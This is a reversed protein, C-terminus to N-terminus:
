IQEVQAGTLRHRTDFIFRSHESVLDWDFIDHDTLVVVADAASLEEATLDCMRIRTDMRSREIHPDVAGVDAGLAILRDAV